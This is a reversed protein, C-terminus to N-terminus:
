GFYSLEKKEKNSMVQAAEKSKEMYQKLSNEFKKAAELLPKFDVKLGLYDDLAGVVRAAAESDPLQSHAEAFVCTVPFDKAKLLLAATTGMVIGETLPKAKLKTKNSYYYVDLNGEHSPMSELVLIEKAAVAKAVDMITVALDWEHGTVETLSQVVILNFKKNYYLTIPNVIKSKHIATLPVIHESEIHGIEEVDLHDILFKTAITSVLGMSPFGLIITPNKPKKDLIFKMTLNTSYHNILINYVRM